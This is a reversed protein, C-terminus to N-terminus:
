MSLGTETRDMSPGASIAVQLVFGCVWVLVCVFVCFCLCVFMIDCFRLSVFVFESFFVFLCVFDCVRFCLFM